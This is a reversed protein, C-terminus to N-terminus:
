SHARHRRYYARAKARNGCSKMDCWQRSHNKTLDVFLWDCDDAACLRVRALAERDTLLEAADRAIPWLPRDLALEDAWGWALGDTSPAMYSYLQSQSPVAGAAFLGGAIPGSTFTDDGSLVVPHGFGPLAVDNEHNFRGMGFVPHHKGTKVDLAVVVGDEKQAPDDLAPPWSAEQRLM